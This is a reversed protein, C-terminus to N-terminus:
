FLKKLVCYFYILVYDINKMEAWFRISGFHFTIIKVSFMSAWMNNYRENRAFRNTKKCFEDKVVRDSETKQEEIIKRVDFIQGAVRKWSSSRVTFWLIM